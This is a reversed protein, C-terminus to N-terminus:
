AGQFSALWPWTRYIDAKRTDGARITGTDLGEQTSPPLACVQETGRFFFICSWFM